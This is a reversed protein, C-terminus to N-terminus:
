DNQYFGFMDVVLDANRTGRNFFDVIGTSGTGAQVLNPVTQGATWNLTSINPPTPAVQTGAEYASISNPDPAVTLFGASKTNTVTANLVFSTYSPDYVLNGTSDIGIGLPLPLYEGEGLTDGDQRTDELRIPEIPVYSSAGDASYYGNVDVIVEVGSGVVEGNHIDIEGDSGVPVIDANAVTGGKGFNINSATPVTSAGDAYATLFGGGQTNTVTINVSVATIGTSPLEADAGAVQVQVTSGPTVQGDHGGTTTRTDLLRYPDTLSSYGSAETATFYGEVDAILDVSGATAMSNYLDIYGDAGVPVVALNATTTGKGYNVNSTEPVGGADGDDYATVNGSRTSNTATLNLVVATVDSPIDGNGAIKVKVTQDRTVPADHGGTTTRTDLLRTPGDATYDNGATTFADTNSVTTTGDTVTETITYTGPKAYSHSEVSSAGSASGFTSSATGDGWDITGSLTATEPWTFSSTLQVSLASLAVAALAVAPTTTASSTASAAARASSHVVVSKSAPSKYTTFGARQFAKANAAASAASFGHATAGTGAAFAAAPALAVVTLAAVGSVARLRYTSM